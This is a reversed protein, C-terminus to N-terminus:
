HVAGKWGDGCPGGGAYEAVGGVTELHRNYIPFYYKAITDTAEDCYHGIFTRRSRTKSRNPGSGHPLEGHFFLTQGRKVPVPTSKNAQDVPLHSWMGKWQKDPTSDENCYIGRGQSRPIVHLCGNEPDADDIPTWTGMCAAPSALLYFNDQHMGQGVSGPPKYYYMTQVGLPDKEFLAALVEVARPHMMWRLPEPNTRHPQLARLLEKKPDIEGYAKGGHFTREETNRYDEFFAEIEELESASYVNDVIVYGERDYFEKLAAHESVQFSPPPAQEIKMVLIM